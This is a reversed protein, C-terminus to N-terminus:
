TQWSAGLSTHEHTRTDECMYMCKGTAVKCTLLSIQFWFSFLPSSHIEKHRAQSNPSSMHRCLLRLHNATTTWCCVKGMGTNFSPGPQSVTLRKKRCNTLHGSLCSEGMDWEWSCSFSFGLQADHVPGLPAKELHGLGIVVTIVKMASCSRQVVIVHSCQPLM